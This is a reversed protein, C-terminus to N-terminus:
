YFLILMLIMLLTLFQNSFYVIKKPKYLLHKKNFIRKKHNLNKITNILINKNKKTLLIQFEMQHQNHFIDLDKNKVLNIM